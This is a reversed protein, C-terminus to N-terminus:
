RAFIVSFQQQLAGPSPLSGAKVARALTANSVPAASSPLLAELQTIVQTALTVAAQVKAQAQPNFVHAANLIAALNHNADSLAANIKQVSTMANASNYDALVTGVLNFDSTAQQSYSAIQSQTGQPVAVGSLILVQLVEGAVPTLVTVYQEATQIWSTSCAGCVIALALVPILLLKKM